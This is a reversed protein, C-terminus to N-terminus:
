ADATGRSGAARARRRQTGFAVTLFDFEYKTEGPPAALFHDFASGHVDIGYGLLKVGFEPFLGVRPANSTPLPPGSQSLDGTTDNAPNPSIGSAGGTKAAGSPDNNSAGARNPRTAQAVQTVQAQAVKGPPSASASGNNTLDPKSVDTAVAVAQGGAATIEQVLQNLAGESRAAAVVRAGRGATLRATALGIGSSAGTIVVVQEAIPKLRIKM